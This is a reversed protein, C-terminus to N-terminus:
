VFFIINLLYNYKVNMENNTANVIHKNKDEGRPANKM